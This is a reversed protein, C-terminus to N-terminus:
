ANADVIDASMNYTYRYKLMRCVCNVDYTLDSAGSDDRPSASLLSIRNGDVSGRMSNVLDTAYFM